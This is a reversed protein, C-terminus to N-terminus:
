FYINEDLCRVYGGPVQRIKGQIELQILQQMLRKLDLGTREILCDLPTLEDGMARLIPPPAIARAQHQPMKKEFGLHLLVEEASTVLTAGQQILQLCGQAETNHINSPLAMVERNQELAFRATILSGSKIAAEVVLTCLTLGSIIRNRRPFHGAKPASNVSFESLILGNETIQHALKTHASPYIKNLGSGLVAITRGKKALAGRHAQADIGLALGSVITLDALSLDHAFQFANGAAIPTPKRTGVIAIAQTELTSLQGKAYLVVPPAYIEKLLSPYREDEPTLITQRQGENFQLCDHIKKFDFTKIAEAQALTLGIKQLDNISAKFIEGLEPWIEKLKAIKVPGLGQIQNLALAAHLLNM